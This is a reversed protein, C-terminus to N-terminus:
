TVTLTRATWCRSTASRPPVVAGHEDRWCGAVEAPGGSAVGSSSAVAAGQARADGGGPCGLPGRAMCVRRVETELEASEAHGARGSRSAGWASVAEEGAAARVEASREAKKVAGATSGATKSATGSRRPVALRLHSEATLRPRGSSTRGRHTASMSWAVAGATMLARSHRVRWPM